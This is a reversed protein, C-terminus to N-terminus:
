REIEGHPYSNQCSTNDFTSGFSNLLRQQRKLHKKYAKKEENTPWKRKKKKPTKAPGKLCKLKAACSKSCSKAWGRKVDATRAMFTGGCDCQRQIMSPM